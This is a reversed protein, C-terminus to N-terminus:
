IGKSEFDTPPIPGWGKRLYGKNPPPDLASIYKLAKGLLSSDEKAEISLIQLQYYYFKFSLSINKKSSLITNRLVL